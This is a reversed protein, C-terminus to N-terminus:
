KIEEEFQVTSISNCQIDLYLAESEIKAVGHLTLYLGDQPLVQVSHRLDITQNHCPLTRCDLQYAHGMAKKAQEFQGMRIHQRILRSGIEQQDHGDLLSIVVIDINKPKAWARIEDIGCLRKYGMRFDEGIIIRKLPITLLLLDLFQEGTMRSLNESFDVVISCKIGLKQVIEYRQDLTFITGIFNPDFIQAPLPAFLTIASNSGLQQILKQHGLHLADFSGLAIDYAISRDALPQGLHCIM